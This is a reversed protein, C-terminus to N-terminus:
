EKAIIYDGEATIIYSGDSATIFSYGSPIEPPPNLERAVQEMMQNYLDNSSYFRNGRIDMAGFVCQVRAPSTTRISGAKVGIEVFDINYLVPISCSSGTFDVEQTVFDGKKCFLFCATKKNYEEWEADFDFSVTYDSNGNVIYISTTPTAIRNRIRVAINYM